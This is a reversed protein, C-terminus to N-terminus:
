SDIQRELERSSYVERSALRLYFEREEDSDSKSLILMNNTWSIERLLASVKENKSYVEYFQRMRWINQASFGKIDPERERIFDSLDQVVSKGWESANLKQHVYAGIQWYLEILGTNVSLNIKAKAVRILKQVEKFQNPINSKTKM